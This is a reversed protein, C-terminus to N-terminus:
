RRKQWLTYIVLAWVSTIVFALTADLAKLKWGRLKKEKPMVDIADLIYGFNRINKVDFRM